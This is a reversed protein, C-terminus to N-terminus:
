ALVPEPHKTGTAGLTGVRARHFAGATEALLTESFAPGVFSVGMPIGSPLFGNPVAIAAMDAMNVFNTYRGNTANTAFPDARVADITYVTGVTPVVLVDTGALSRRMAQVNEKLRHVSEFAEAATFRASGLIVRRVTDEASQPNQEIFGGVAAYREALWPGEFMMRSTEAFIDFNIETLRHGHSELVAIGESFLAAAADNGYFELTDRAPM